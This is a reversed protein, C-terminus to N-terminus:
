RERTQTDDNGLADRVAAVAVRPDLAYLNIQRIPIHDSKPLAVDVPEKLVLALNAAGAVPIRLVGDHVEATKRQVRSDQRPRLEAVCALPHTGPHGPM